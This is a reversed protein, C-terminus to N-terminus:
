TQIRNTQHKRRKRTVSNLFWEAGGKKAKVFIGIPHSHIEKDLSSIAKRSQAQAQLLAREGM